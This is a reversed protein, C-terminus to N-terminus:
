TMQDFRGGAAEVVGPLALLTAPAGDLQRGGHNSVIVGAVGADAAMRADDPDLGEARIAEAEDDDM